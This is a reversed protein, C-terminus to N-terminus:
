EDPEDSPVQAKQEEPVVNEDHVGHGQFLLQSGPVRATHLQLQVRRHSQRRRLQDRVLQDGELEAHGVQAQARQDGRLDGGRGGRSERLYRFLFVRAVNM